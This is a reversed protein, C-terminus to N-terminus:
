MIGYIVSAAVLAKCLVLGTAVIWTVLGIIWEIRKINEQRELNIISLSMLVAAPIFHVLNIMVAHMMDSSRMGSLYQILFQVGILLLGGTMLWRSRNAAHDDNVKTPLMFLLALAMLTTMVVASFQM